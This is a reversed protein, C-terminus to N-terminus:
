HVSGQIVAKDDTLKIDNVKLSGLKLETMRRVKSESIGLRQSLELTTFSLNGLKIKSNEDLKLEGNVVTPKGEIGIYIERNTLAPFAKIVKTLAAVEGAKLQATSIESVNVIAGSEIEGDKINTRVAKVAKAFKSNAKKAIEPAILSNLENENLQLKVNKDVTAQQTMATIKAEVNKRTQYIETKDENIDQKKPPQQTYWDPLKNAQTWYYYLLSTGGIIILVLVTVFKKM